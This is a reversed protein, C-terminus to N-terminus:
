HERSVARRGRQALATPSSQVARRRSQSALTPWTSVDPDGKFTLPVTATIVTGRAPTSEIRLLGGCRALLQEIDSLGRGHGVPAEPIGGSGNDRVVLILVDSAYQLQVLVASSHGHTYANHLANYLFLVIARQVVDDIQATRPGCVELTCTCAPYAVALSAVTDRATQELDGPLASDGAAHHLGVVVQLLRNSQALGEDLWRKIDGVESAAQAQMLCRQTAMIHAKLQAHELMRVEDLVAQRGRAEGLRMLTTQLREAGRRRHQMLLRVAALSLMLCSLALLLFLIEWRLIQKIAALIHQQEPIRSIDSPWPLVHGAQGAATLTMLMAAIGIARHQWGM